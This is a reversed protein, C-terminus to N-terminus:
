YDINMWQRNEKLLEFPAPTLDQTSQSKMQTSM